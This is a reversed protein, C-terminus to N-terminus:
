LMSKLQDITGPQPKEEVSDPGGHLVNNVHIFWMLRGPPMSRLDATTFGMGIAGVYM